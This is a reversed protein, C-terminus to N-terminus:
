NVMTRIKNFNKGHQLFAQEFLVKDESTWEDPIPVFGQMDLLAKEVNYKHFNLMVLAQDISYSCKARAAFLYDERQDVTLSDTPIWMPTEGYDVVPQM